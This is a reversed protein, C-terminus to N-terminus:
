PMSLHNKMQALTARVVRESGSDVSFWTGRSTSLINRLAEGFRKELEGYNKFVPVSVFTSTEYLSLLVKYVQRYRDDPFAVNKERVLKRFAEKHVPMYGGQVALSLNVEPSTVWKCFVAAAYEKKPTSARAYLSSGRQIDLRKAGGFRPDPLVTLRLPLTTNDRLTLTDNFYLIAASSGVGCVVEGMMMVTSNYGPNLWLQGGAAARALPRWLKLLAPNDWRIRDKEFFAEGLSASNLMAYHIWDDYMFFSKGGSWQHYRDAAHFVGELTALDAHTIGTERSFPEFLTDNVYLLNTSKALPFGYLAGGAMGEELFAPVYDRLEEESFYKKWDLARTNGIIALTKPYCTFLDPLEESGPEERASAVLEDHMTWTSSVSTVNIIIGQEKGVTQNFRDVLMNMPSRAQAGYVHWMTLTVPKDADLPSETCACLLLVCAVLLGRLFIGRLVGTFATMATGADHRMDGQWLSM